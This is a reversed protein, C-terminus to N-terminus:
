GAPEDLLRRIEPQLDFFRRHDLKVEQRFCAIAEDRRGLRELLLVGKNHWLAPARVNHELGREYNALAEEYRELRELIVGRNCWAEPAEPRLAVARDLEALARELEGAVMHGTGTCIAGRAEDGTCALARGKLRWAAADDRDRGLLLEAIEIAKSAQGIECGIEGTELLWAREAEDAGRIRIASAYMSWADSLRGLARLCRGREVLAEPYRPQVACAHRAAELAAELRGLERLTEARHLWPAGERPRLEAAREFRALAEERRGLAREALGAALWLGPEDPHQELAAECRELAERPRDLRGLTKAANVAATVNAPEHALAREFRELARELEGARFFMVGCELQLMDPADSLAAARDFETAAAELRGAEYLVWAKKRLTEIRRSAFDSM